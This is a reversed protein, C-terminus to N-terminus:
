TPLTGPRILEIHDVFWGLIRHLAFIIALAMERGGVRLSATLHIGGYAFCALWLIMEVVLGGVSWLLDDSPWNHVRRALLEEPQFSPM